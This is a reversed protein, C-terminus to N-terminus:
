TRIHIDDNIMLWLTSDSSSKMYSLYDIFLFIYFFNESLAETKCLILNQCSNSIDGEVQNYIRLAYNPMGYSKCFFTTKQNINM